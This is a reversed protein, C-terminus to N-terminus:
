FRYTLYSGGIVRWYDFPGVNSDHSAVWALVSVELHRGIPRMLELEVQNVLDRRKTGTEEIPVFVSPNRFQRSVFRYSATLLLEWPLAAGFGGSLEYGTYRFEDGQPDFDDYLAGVRLYQVPHDLFVFQNLGYTNQRGDRDLEPTLNTIFYDIDQYQYFLETLGRRGQSVIVSPTIRHVRQFSDTLDLNTHAFDYRLNLRVPEIGVSGSAWGINTLLDVQTQDTHFSAYGDYGASLRFHESDWLRYGAQVRLVGRFDSERGIPLGTGTLTPNSDFEMGGTLALEWPKGPEGPRLQERLEGASRGLPHAPSQRAVIGLAGAAASFDGQFALTLGRYYSAERGLDPDIETARDLYPIAAAYNRLRYQAIGAFLQARARDPERALLKEFVELAEQNRGAGLLTAGLDFQLDADNPTIALAREFLAVAEDRRGEADAILGLYHIATADRPDEALVIEFQERAEALREDGFAEVGRHFALESAVSAAGPSAAALLLATIMALLFAATRIARRRGRALQMGRAARM